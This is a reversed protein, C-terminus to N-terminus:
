RRLGENNRLITWILSPVKVIRHAVGVGFEIM